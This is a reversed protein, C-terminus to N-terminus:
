TDRTWNYFEIRMLNYLRINDLRIKVILRSRLRYEILKGSFSTHCKELSQPFKMLPTHKFLTLIVRRNILFYLFSSCM